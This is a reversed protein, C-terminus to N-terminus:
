QVDKLKLRRRDVLDFEKNVAETIRLKVEDKTKFGHRAIYTPNGIADSVHLGSMVIANRIKIKRADIKTQQWSFGESMM